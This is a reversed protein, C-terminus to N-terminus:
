LLNDLHIHNFIHAIVEVTWGNGLQRYRQTDSVMETYGDPLTQLRECEVPTLKRIAYLGDSLKVPIKREKYLLLGEEVIFLPVGERPLEYIPTHRKKPIDSITKKGSNSQLCYSKQMVMSDTQVTTIANAKGTTQVEPKKFRGQDTNRTRFALGYPQASLRAKVGLGGGGSTLCVSKGSTDYIRTAQSGKGLDGIRYPVAIKQGEGKNTTLCYSKGEISQINGNQGRGSPNVNGVKGCLTNATLGNHPLGKAMVATVTNAKNSSGQIKNIRFSNEVGEAFLYSIGGNSHYYKLAPRDELIDALVLGKDDPQTLGPINTWYLRNRNQASVKASNIHIPEVGLTETIIAEDAKPMRYNNEVLFYRPNIEKIARVQEWFLRSHQGKLGQRNNKGISLDTCPFGGIVMDFGKYQSFDAGEVSGKHEIDEWNWASVNIADQDIEYAVYRTVPIGARELAVRGCSIGDFLSLVKM